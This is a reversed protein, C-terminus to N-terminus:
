LEEHPTTKGSVAFAELINMRTKFSDVRFNAEEFCPCYKDSAMNGKAVIAELRHKETMPYQPNM